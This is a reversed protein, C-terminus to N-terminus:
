EFEITANFARDIRKKEQVVDRTAFQTYGVEWLCFVSVNGILYSLITEGPNIRSLYNCLIFASISLILLIIARSYHRKLYRAIRQQDDQYHARYVERFLNQIVPNLPSTCISISLRDGKYKGVFSDVSKYVVKNLEAHPLLVHQDFLEEKKLKLVLETEQQATGKKKTNVGSDTRNRKKYMQMM